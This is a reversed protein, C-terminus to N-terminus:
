NTLAPWDEGDARTLEIIAGEGYDNTWAFTLKTGEVVVDTVTYAEDWQSLGSISLKNDVDRLRLDGNPLNAQSDTGYGAYYAGFSIDELADADGNKTMIIYEGDDEANMHQRVFTVSGEWVNGVAGDWTTAAGGQATVTAKGTMEGALASDFDILSSVINVTVDAGQVVGNLSHSITFSEGVAVDDSTLGTAALAELMTIQLGESPFTSIAGLTGSAGSSHTITREVSSAADGATYLNYASVQDDICCLDWEDLTLGNANVATGGKTFDVGFTTFDGETGDPLVFKDDNTCSFVSLVICAFFMLSLSGNIKLYKM